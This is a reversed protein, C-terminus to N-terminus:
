KVANKRAKTARNLITMTVKDIQEPTAKELTIKYADFCLERATAMSYSPHKALAEGLRWMASTHAETQMKQAADMATKTDGALNAFHVLLRLYDGNRSQSIRKGHCELAENARYKDESLDTLGLAKDRLWATRSFTSLTGKQKNSLPLALARATMTKM